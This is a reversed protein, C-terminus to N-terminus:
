ANSACTGFVALAQYNFDVKCCFDEGRGEEQLLVGLRMQGFPGVSTTIPYAAELGFLGCDGICAAQM